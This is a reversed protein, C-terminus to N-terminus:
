APPISRKKLTSFCDSCVNHMKTGGSELEATTRSIPKQCSDCIIQGDRIM